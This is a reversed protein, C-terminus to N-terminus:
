QKRSNKASITLLIRENLASHAQEAKHIEAITEQNNIM